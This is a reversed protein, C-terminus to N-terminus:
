DSCGMRREQTVINRVIARQHASLPVDNIDDYSCGANGFSRIARSTKFCYGADKYIQNREYWLSSCSAHALSPLFISGVMTVVVAYFSKKMENDEVEVFSFMVTPPAILRYFCFNAAEPM